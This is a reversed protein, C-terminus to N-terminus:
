TRIVEEAITLIIKRLEIATEWMFPKSPQGNSWYWEGNKQYWWGYEGHENVDYKWGFSTSIPHPNEQGQVGFGFEVYQAYPCNTFITFAGTGDKEMNISQILEGSYIANHESINVRAIFIGEQALRMSFLNLKENLEKKYALVEEKAKQVEKVSLGFSINM